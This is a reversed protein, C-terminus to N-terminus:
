SSNASQMSVVYFIMETHGICTKRNLIQSWESNLNCYRKYSDQLEAFQDFKKM